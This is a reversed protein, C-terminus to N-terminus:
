TALLVDSPQSLSGCQTSARGLLSTLSHSSSSIVTIMVVVIAVICAHENLMRSLVLNLWRVGANRVSPCAVRKSM